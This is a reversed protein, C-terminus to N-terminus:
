VSPTGGAVLVLVELDVVLGVLVEVVLELVDVDLETTLEVDEFDVDVIFVVLVLENTLCDLVELLCVVVLVDECREVVVELLVDVEVEEAM